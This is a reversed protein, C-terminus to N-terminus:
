FLTFPAIVMLKIDKEDQFINGYGGSYSPLNSHNDYRTYHLKFLTDKARGQQVQYILDLNWASERLRQSQDFRPQTAPRADWGWVRSGGVKWGALQWPTLDLLAGVFIAKEGNANWDSRADWWIDLRGNSSAYGPTMRQLFFGQNGEAKVWSGELRLDVPGVRYGFTLAQLWALGDYVDNANSAGGQQKDHAGYFQYSTHLDNGSFPMTWSTKVFYQDIYGVAQGFAVEVMLSNNFSYKAGISHLYLIDTVGDAQRFHYLERYWPSKYRDSWLYSFLLRGAEGFDYRSGAEFGRYTGPLFSWHPLILTQGTPQIYGTRMWNDNFKFKLAAQYISVGSTDGRWKEDWRRRAQSFGIENPAAPGSNALEAAGYLAFDVGVWGAAYGSQYALNSNLTAHHLHARYEGHYENASDLEKRDRQRQWYFINGKLSSEEIFGAGYAPLASLASMFTTIIVIETLAFAYNIQRM